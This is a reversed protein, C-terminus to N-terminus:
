LTEHKNKFHTNGTAKRGQCCVDWPWGEKSTICYTDYNQEQVRDQLETLKYCLLIPHDGYPPMYDWKAFVAVLASTLTGSATCNQHSTLSPISALNSDM